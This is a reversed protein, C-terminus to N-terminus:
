LGAYIRALWENGRPTDGQTSFPYKPVLSRNIRNDPNEGPHEIVQTRVKIEKARAFVEVYKRKIVVWEGVPVQKVEVWRGFDQKGIKCCEIGKGNVFADVFKSAFELQSPQFMVTVPEEMFALNDAQEPSLQKTGHLLPIDPSPREFDSHAPMTVTAPQEQHLERVDIEKKPLKAAKKVSDISASEM